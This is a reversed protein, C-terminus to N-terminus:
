ICLLGNDRKLIEAAVPCERGTHDECPARPSGPLPVGLEELALYVHCLPLGMVNAYCGEIRSVPDFEPDQVAYGGAKDFPEGRAIYLAIEEDTYDRMWLRTEVSRVASRQSSPTLIAVGTIVQHERARLGELMALAEVERAPKGMVQGHLVVLTDAAVIIKGPEQSAVADAKVRALRVAQESPRESGLAIEYVTPFVVEFPVGLLNLLERRRPSGSALVLQTM